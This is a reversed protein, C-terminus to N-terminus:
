SRRSTGASDKETALMSKARAKLRSVFSNFHMHSDLENSEEKTISGCHEKEILESVRAQAEPTPQIALIDAPSRSDVVLDSVLQEFLATETEANQMVSM